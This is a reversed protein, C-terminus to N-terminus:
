LKAAAGVDGNRVREDIRARRALLREAFSWAPECNDFAREFEVIERESMVSRLGRAKTDPLVFPIVVTMYHFLAMAEAHTRQRPIERRAANARRAM